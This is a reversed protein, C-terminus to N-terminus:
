VKLNFINEFKNKIANEIDFEREYFSIQLNFNDSINKKLTQVDKKLTSLFEKNKSLFTINLNKEFYVITIDIRGVNKLKLPILIFHIDKKSKKMKKYIFDSNEVDNILLPLFTWFTDTIKSLYQYQQIDRILEKIKDKDTPSINDNNLFSLLKFKLDNKVDLNKRIKTEFLVGTNKIISEFKSLDVKFNSIFNQIISDTIKTSNFSINSFFPKFKLSNILNTSLEILSTKKAVISILQFKINNKDTSPLIKLLLQNGKQLPIESQVEVLQGKVRLVIGGNPLIDVVQAKINEGSKVFLSKSPLKIINLYESEINILKFNLM